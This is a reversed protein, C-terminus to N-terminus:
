VFIKYFVGITIYITILNIVMKFSKSNIIQFYAFM